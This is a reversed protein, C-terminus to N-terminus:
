NEEFIVPEQELWIVRDIIWSSIQGVKEPEINLTESIKCIFNGEQDSFDKDTYALILMYKILELKLRRQSIKNAYKICLSQPTSFFRLKIEIKIAAALSEILSTEDPSIKGDIGALTCLIMVFIEKEEDSADAFCDVNLNIHKKM